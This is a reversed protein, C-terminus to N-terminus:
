PCKIYFFTTREGPTRMAHLLKIICLFVLKIDLHIITFRIPPQDRGNGRDYDQRKKVRPEFFSLYDWNWILYNTKGNKTGLKFKNIKPPNKVTQIWDRFMSASTRRRISTAGWTWCPSCRSVTNVDFVGSSSEVARETHPHNMSPGDCSSSYAIM